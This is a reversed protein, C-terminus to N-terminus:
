KEKLPRNVKPELEIKTGFLKWTKYILSKRFLRPPKYLLKVDEANAADDAENEDKSADEIACSHIVSFEPEVKDKVKNM